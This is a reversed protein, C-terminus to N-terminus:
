SVKLWAKWSAPKMARLWVRQYGQETAQQLVKKHAAERAAAWDASDFRQDDPTEDGWIDWADPDRMALLKRGGFLVSSDTKEKAHAPPNVV